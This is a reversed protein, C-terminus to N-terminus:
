DGYFITNFNNKIQEKLEKTSCSRIQAVDYYIKEINIDSADSEIFISSAPTHKLVEVTKQSKLSQPSFSLHCGIEIYKKAIIDNGTFSHIIKGGNHQRLIEYTQNHSKVTHVIVVKKFQDAIALQDKFLEIQMEMNPHLADLGIEGIAFLLPAIKTFNTDISINTDWPHIATCTYESWELLEIGYRFSRLAIMAQSIKSSHTHIDIFM